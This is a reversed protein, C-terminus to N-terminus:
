GSPIRIAILAGRGDIGPRAEVSGGLAVVRERINALGVNGSALATEFADAPLGRGDDAVDLALWGDEVEVRVSAREARAHKVVNALLERALSLILRDDRGEAAPAVAVDVDV